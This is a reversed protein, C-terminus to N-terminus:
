PSMAKRLTNFSISLALITFYLCPTGREKEYKQPFVTQNEDLFSPKHVKIRNTATRQQIQNKNESNKTAYDIADHKHALIHFLCRFPCESFCFSVSASKRFFGSEKNYVLKANPIVAPKIRAMFYRDFLKISRHFIIFLPYLLFNIRGITVPAGHPQLWIFM